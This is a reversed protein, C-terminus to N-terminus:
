KKYSTEVVVEAGRQEQFLKQLMKVTEPSSWDHFGTIRRVLTRNPAIVFTEPYALLGLQKALVGGKDYFNAFTIKNQNLFESALLVDEDVSLGIVAFNRPNLTKSLQELSPMERRCPPCWTAWVNVLLMKEHLPNSAAGRASIAELIFPPFKQGETLLPNNSASPTKDCAGVMLLSLLLASSLWLRSQGSALFFAIQKLFM